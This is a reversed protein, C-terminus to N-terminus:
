SGSTGAEEPMREEAFQRLAEVQADTLRAELRIERGTSDVTIGEDLIAFIEPQQQIMMKGMSVVGRLSDALLGADEETGALGTVRLMFGEAVGLSVTMQEIGEVASRPVPMGQEPMQELQDSWADRTVVMWAQSGASAGQIIEVMQADDRVSGADGDITDLAARVGPENGLLLTGADLMVLYPPEEEEEEAPQGPQEGEQGAGETVQGPDETVQGPGEEQGTAEGEETPAEDEEESWMSQDLEYLTRDRYTLTPREALTETMRAPEYDVKAVAVVVADDADGTGGLAAFAGQHIDEIEIGTAEALRQMDGYDEDSMPSEEDLFATGSTSERLADMDAWGVFFADGPLLALLDDTAPGAPGEAAPACALLATALLIAASRLLTSPARPHIRM